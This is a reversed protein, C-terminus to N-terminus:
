SSKVKVTRIDMEVVYRDFTTLDAKSKAEAQVATMLHRTGKEGELSQAVNDVNSSSQVQPHVPQFTTQPVILQPDIVVKIPVSIIRSGSSLWTNMDSNLMKQGVKDEANLNASTQEITSSLTANDLDASRKNVPSASVTTIRAESQKVQGERASSDTRIIVAAAVISLCVIGM